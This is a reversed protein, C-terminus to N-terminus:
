ADEEERAEVKDDDPYLLVGIDTSDELVKRGDKENKLKMDEMVLQLTLEPVLVASVFAGIGVTRLTSDKSSAEKLAQNLAKTLVQGMIRAGKPGFYGQKVVDVIGENLYARIKKRNGKADKIKADLQDRYFSTADRNIVEKLKPLKEHIRFCELEEWSVKLYGRKQWHDKAEAVQHQSCFKQQQQYPLSDLDLPIRLAASMEIPKLCIPCSKSSGDEVALFEERGELKGELLLMDDISSLSSDSGTRKHSRREPSSLTDFVSQQETDVSSPIDADPPIQIDSRIRTSERVPSPLINIKAATHRKLARDELEPIDDVRKFPKKVATRKAPSPDDFSVFGNEKAPEKEEKKSSEAKSYKRSGYGQSRKKQSGSLIMSDFIDNSASEDPLVITELSPIDMLKRRKPRTTTATSKTANREIASNIAKSSKVVPKANLKREPPATDEDSSSEPPAMIDMEEQTLTSAMKDYELKVNLAETAGEQAPIDRRTLSRLLTPGPYNGIILYTKSCSSNPKNM